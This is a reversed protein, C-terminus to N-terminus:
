SKLRKLIYHTFNGHNGKSHSSVLEWNFENLKEIATAPNNIGKLAEHLLHIDLIYSSSSKGEIQIDDYFSGRWFM